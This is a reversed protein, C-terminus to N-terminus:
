SPVSIRNQSSLYSPLAVRRFCYRARYLMTRWLLSVRTLIIFLEGGDTVNLLSKDPCLSTAKFTKSWRKAFMWNCSSCSSNRQFRCSFPINETADMYLARIKGSTDISLTLLLLSQFNFIENHIFTNPHYRRLPTIKNLSLRAFRFQYPLLSHIKQWWSSVILCKNKWHRKGLDIHDTMWTAEVKNGGHLIVLIKPFQSFPISLLNLFCILTPAIAKMQNSHNHLFSLTNLSLFEEM